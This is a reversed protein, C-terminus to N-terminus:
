KFRGTAGMNVPVIRWVSIVSIQVKNDCYQIDVYVLSSQRFVGTNLAHSLKQFHLKNKISTNSKLVTLSEM